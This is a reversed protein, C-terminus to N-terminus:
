GLQRQGRAVPLAVVEAQLEAQVAEVRVHALVGDLGLLRQIRDACAGVLGFPERPQEVRREGLGLARRDTCLLDRSFAPARGGLRDRRPGGLNILYQRLLLIGVHYSNQLFSSLRYVISSASM